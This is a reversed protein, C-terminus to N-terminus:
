HGTLSLGISTHLVLVLLVYLLYLLCSRALWLTAPPGASGQIKGFASSFNHFAYVYGGQAGVFRASHRLDKKEEQDSM